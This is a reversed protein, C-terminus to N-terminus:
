EKNHILVLPARGQSFKGSGAKEAKLKEGEKANRDGKRHVYQAASIACRDRRNPDAKPDNMVALMYDLPTQITDQIENSEKDKLATVDSSVNTLVKKSKAGRPRGAGPRKGGHNM